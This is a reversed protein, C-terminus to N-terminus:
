LYVTSCYVQWRSEPFKSITSFLQFQELRYIRKKKSLIKTSPYTLKKKKKGIVSNLSALSSTNMSKIKQRMMIYQQVLDTNMQPCFSNCGLQEKYIQSSDTSVISQHCCLFSFLFSPPTFSLELFNSETCHHTFPITEIVPQMYNHHSCDTICMEREWPGPAQSISKGNKHQM